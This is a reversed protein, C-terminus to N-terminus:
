AVLTPDAVVRQTAAMVVTKKYRGDDDDAALTM